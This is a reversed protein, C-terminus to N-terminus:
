AASTPVVAGAIAAGVVSATTAVAVWDAVVFWDAGVVRENSQSFYTGALSRLYRPRSCWALTVVGLAVVGLTVVSLAVVTLVAVFLATAVDTAVVLVLVGTLGNVYRTPPSCPGSATSM